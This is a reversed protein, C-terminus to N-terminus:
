GFVGERGAKAVFGSVQPLATEIDAEYKLLVNLTDKVTQHDLESAQLLVLVRAWDITESVSPLKKLDLARIQNIFGVMQRRLTEGAGPVRSEVIREELRQEPFGIHLHLCRRKLADSLDREGNSTLLVLPKVTASITGLEPITVQYDSLIELLLSEFEADSKDIEDVLLVCGEPQELAKLLPRPEVFEKSFFVDGFDHLRGLADSLTQAGGLVEGLKDKLIQTYLLQKAYKWEYLAKAEDLGEYCQMRIMQLGRWSALAKALETKGVGAPGEVLIPKEIKEALYVATAIQRSAIYGVSALGATVAEISQMPLNATM